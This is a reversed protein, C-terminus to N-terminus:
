SWNIRRILFANNKRDLKCWGSQSVPQTTLKNNPREPFHQSQQLQTKKCTLLYTFLPTETSCKLDLIVPSSAM